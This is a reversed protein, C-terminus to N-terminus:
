EDTLNLISSQVLDYIMTEHDYYYLSCNKDKPDFLLSNGFNDFAFAILKTKTKTSKWNEIKEIVFPSEFGINIQQGKKINCISKTIENVIIKFKKEFYEVKLNSVEVISFATKFNNIAEITVENKINNKLMSINSLSLEVWLKETKTLQKYKSFANQYIGKAGIKKLLSILRVSLFLDRGIWSKKWDKDDTSYWNISKIIDFSNEIDNEWFEYQSGPHAYLPQNCNICRKVSKKVEGNLVLNNPIALWWKTTITSGEVFTKRYSCQNPLLIDFVQKLRDSIFLNGLDAEIIEIGSFNRNKAIYYPEPIKDINPFKCEECVIEYKNIPTDLMCNTDLIDMRRDSCCITSLRINQSGM